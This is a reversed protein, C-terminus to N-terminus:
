YGAIGYALDNQVYAIDIGFAIMNRISAGRFWAIVSRGNQYVQYVGDPWEFACDASEIHAIDLPEISREGFAFTLIWQRTTDNAILATTIILILTIM